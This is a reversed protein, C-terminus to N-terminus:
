GFVLTKIYILFVVFIIIVCISSAIDSLAATHEFDVKTEEQSLLYLAALEKEENCM